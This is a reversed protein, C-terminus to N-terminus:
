AKKQQTCLYSLTVEEQYSTSKLESIIQLLVSSLRICINAHSVTYNKLKDSYHSPIKTSDIDQMYIYKVIDMVFSHLKEIWQIFNVGSNYVSSIISIITGNDKKAYSGVLKFYSDFDPLELANAISEPTINESYVLAKDTLTLADRLGGCALKAIYDICEDQYTINRGEAIEKDLIAKLRECIVSNPIKSLQYRQVRSIITDPIKEPNTTCFIFVTRAPSEELCKLLSQWAQSSLAHCEDYVIIKYKGIVPFSRAQRIIDRTADVNGNSAADIEVIESAQNGNLTNGIIRALTTKGTGAPGSLLINRNTLTTSCMNKLINVVIEQGVVDDFTKPRYKNALTM